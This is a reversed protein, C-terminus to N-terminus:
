FATQNQKKRKAQTRYNGTNCTIALLILLGVDSLIYLKTESVAVNIEHGICEWGSNISQKCLPFM